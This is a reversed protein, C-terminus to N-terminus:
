SSIHRNLCAAWRSRAQCRSSCAGGATLSRRCCHALVLQSSWPAPFMRASVSESDQQWRVFTRIREDQAFPGEAPRVNM